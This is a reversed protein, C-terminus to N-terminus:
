VGADVSDSWPENQYCKEACKAWVSFHELNNTDGASRLVLRAYVGAVDLAFPIFEDFTASDWVHAHERRDRARAVEAAVDLNPAAPLLVARVFDEYHEDTVATIRQEYEALLHAKSTLSRGRDFSFRMDPASLVVLGGARIVRFLEGVAEIPNAIHEIVHNMIAFDLSADAIARLGQADLDAVIDVEVLRTADIEPFLRSAEETSITDVYTM